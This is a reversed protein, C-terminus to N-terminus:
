KTMEEEIFSVLAVISVQMVKEGDVTIEGEGWRFNRKRKTERIFIDLVDGPRVEKQFRAEEIKVFRVDMHKGLVDEGLAALLAAAQAVMEVLYVGPMVKYGPFHGQFIQENYTVCKRALIYDASKWDEVRDILLFPFRHPIRQLIGDIDLTQREAM